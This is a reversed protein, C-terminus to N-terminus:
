GTAMQVTSRMTIHPRWERAGLEVLSPM